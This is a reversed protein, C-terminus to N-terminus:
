PWSGVAWRRSRQVAERGGPVAPHRHPHRGLRRTPDARAMRPEELVRDRRHRMLSLDPVEGHDEVALTPELRDTEVVRGRDDPHPDEVVACRLRDVGLPPLSAQGFHHFTAAGQEIRVVGGAQPADVTLVVAQGTEDDVEVVVDGDHLQVRRGPYRVQLGDDRQERTQQGRARHHEAEAASGLAVCRIPDDVAHGQESM